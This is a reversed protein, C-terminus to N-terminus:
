GGIASQRTSVASRKLCYVATLLVFIFGCLLAVPHVYLALYAMGTIPILAYRVAARAAPHQRLFYAAPPSFKYYLDVTRRGAPNTLLRNDRFESRIQVHWDMDSGFAATAIFCGGSSGLAIGKAGSGLGSPDVIVGNAVGDDDGIGGDVLTLTVQDRDANFEAYDSYDYWGNNPGYKHWVYGDPAPNELYITVKVTGGVTGPKLQMQILGYILDDPINTTDPLSDPSVTMFSVINGGSEVRIGITKMTSTETTLVDTPFGIIGNDKVDISVVDTHQLKGNDIVALLFELHTGNSDVPPTM